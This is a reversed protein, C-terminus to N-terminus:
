AGPLLNAEPEWTSTSYGEWQVKYEITADAWRWDEISEIAYAAEGAEIRIPPPADQPRDYDVQSRKMRDVNFTRSLKWHQPINVEFANEGRRPGLTFPGIFPHQLKRRRGDVSPKANAYEIPLNKTSLFVSDGEQFTHPTRHKNAELSQAQQVSALRVHLEDLISKLHAAFPLQPHRLNHRSRILTDLPACTVYGLDAEFPSMDISQHRSSNYAFEAMPLLM